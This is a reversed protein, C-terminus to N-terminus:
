LINVFTLKSDSWEFQYTLKSDEGKLDEHIQKPGMRVVITGTCDVLKVDIYVSGDRGNYDKKLIKVDFDKLNFIVGGNNRVNIDRPELNLVAQEALWIQGEPTNTAPGGPRVPRAANNAKNMKGSGAGKVVRNLTALIKGSM